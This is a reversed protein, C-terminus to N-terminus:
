SLREYLQNMWFCVCASIIFGWMFKQFSSFVIGRISILNDVILIVVFVIPLIAVCWKHLFEIFDDM